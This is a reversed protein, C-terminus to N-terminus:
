EEHEPLLSRITRDKNEAFVACIAVQQEQVHQIM